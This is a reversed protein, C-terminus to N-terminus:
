EDKFQQLLNEGGEVGIFKLSPCDLWVNDGIKMNEVPLIVKKLKHCHAFCDNKLELVGSLLSIEELAYCEQFCSSGLEVLSEPLSVKKLKHCRCFAEKKIKEVGNPIHIEPLSVCEYFAKEMIMRITEPLIVKKLSNCMSFVGEFVYDISNPLIIERLQSESFAWIGMYKVTSPINIEVLSTGYFASEGIEEVSEPLILRELTHFGINENKICRIPVGDALSPPLIEVSNKGHYGNIEIYDTKVQVSWKECLEELTPLELGMDLLEKRKEFQELHQKSFNKFKYDLLLATETTNERKISYELYEELEALELHFGESFYTSMEKATSQFFVLNRLYNGKKVENLSIKKKWEVRFVKKGEESLMNWHKLQELRYKEKEEQPFGLLVQESIEVGQELFLALLNSTFYFCELDLPEERPAFTIRTLNDRKVFYKERLIQLSAPIHIEKLNRCRAVASVFVVELGEPFHLVELSSCQAFADACIIKLGRGWHIEKLHSCAGFTYRGIQSLYEPLIIQKLARCEMFTFPNLVTLGRSLKIKELKSCEQFASAGLSTVSDPISVSKLKKKGFFAYDAIATIGNPIIVETERGYYGVLLTQFLIFGNNDQLKPCQNFVLREFKLIDTNPFGEDLIVEELSYSKQFASAGIYELSAPFNIKKLNECAFFCGMSLRKLTDPLVIEEIEKRKQFTNRLTLVPLGEIESPVVVKKENGQYSELVVYRRTDKECEKSVYGEQTSYEISYEFDEFQKM